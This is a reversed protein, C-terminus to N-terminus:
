AAEEWSKDPERHVPAASNPGLPIANAESKLIKLLLSARENSVGIGDDRMADALNDRSLSRGTRALSERADHAAPILHAV